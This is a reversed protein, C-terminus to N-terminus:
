PHGLNPLQKLPNPYQELYKQGLIKSGAHNLHHSDRYLPTQNLVTECRQEDCMANRPNIWHIQPYKTSLRQKLRYFNVQEQEVEERPLSCDPLNKLLCYAFSTSPLGPADEIFVVQHGHEILWDTINEMYRQYHGDAMYSTWWSSLFVTTPAQELYDQLAQSRLVKRNDGTAELMDDATIFPTSAKTVLLTSIGIDKSLEEIFGAMSTGHSDGILLADPRAQSSKVGLLCRESTDFNLSDGDFCPDFIDGANQQNIIKYLERRNEPIRFSIDDAIRITAQILWIVIAPLLMVLLFTKKLSWNKYRIRSEIFTYSVWGMVLSAAILLLQNVLTLEILQYNLIAVPPWHWLYVSYSLAGLYVLPRCGLLKGAQWDNESLGAYIMLGTGIVPWLANYGPFLDSKTLTLASGIILTLGLISILNSVVRNTRPLRDGFLALGAGLLLEYLRTTLLYYAADPTTETRYVSYAFAAIWVGLFIWPAATKKLADKGFLIHVLFLLPPWILYYQFEVALSWTHLLPQTEADPAFYKAFEQIYYINSYGILSFLWSKSYKYYEADMFLPSILFFTVFSVLLFAPILRKIRANYFEGFSFSGAAFQKLLLNSMVFGTIVFFVDVGVYGGSVGSFQFHYLLVLAAAIARLGDIDARYKYMFPSRITIKPSVGLLMQIALAVTAVNYM